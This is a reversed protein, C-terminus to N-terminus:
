FYFSLTPSISLINLFNFNEKIYLVTVHIPIRVYKFNLQTNSEFNINLKLNYFM